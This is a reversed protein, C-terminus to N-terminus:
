GGLLTNQGPPLASGSDGGAVPRRRREASTNPTGAKPATGLITGGAPAIAAGPSNAAKGATTQDFRIGEGYVPRGASIGFRATEAGTADYQGSKQQMNYMKDTSKQDRPKLCM